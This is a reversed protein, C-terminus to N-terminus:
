EYFFYLVFAMVMTPAAVGVLLRTLGSKTWHYLLCVTVFYLALEALGALFLVVVPEYDDHNWLDAIWYWSIIPFLFPLTWWLVRKVPGWPQSARIFAGLPQGTVPM